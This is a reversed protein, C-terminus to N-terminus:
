IGASSTPHPIRFLLPISSLCHLPLLSLPGYQSVPPSHTHVLNQDNIILKGPFSDNGDHWPCLTAQFHHPIHSVSRQRQFKNFAMLHIQCNHIQIHRHKRSQIKDFFAPLPTRLDLIHHQRSILTKFINLLREPQPNQVIYGFQLHIFFVAHFQKLLRGLLDPLPTQQLRMSASVVCILHVPATLHYVLQMAEIVASLHGYKLPGDHFRFEMLPFSVTQHKMHQM